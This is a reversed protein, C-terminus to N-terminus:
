YQERLKANRSLRNETQYFRKLAHHKSGGLVRVDKKFPLSVEYSGDGKRVTTKNFHSIFDEEEQTFVRKTTVCELEWFKRLTADIEM